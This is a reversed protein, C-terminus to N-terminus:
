TTISNCSQTSQTSRSRSRSIPINWYIEPRIIQNSRTSRRNSQTSRMNSHSCSCNSLNSLNSRRGGMASSRTSRNNRSGRSSAISLEREHRLKMLWERIKKKQQKTIMSPLTTRKKRKYIRPM